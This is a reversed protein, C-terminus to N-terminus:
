ASINAVAASSHIIESLDVDPVKVMILAAMEQGVRRKKEDESAILADLHFGKIDQRNKALSVQWLEDIALLRTCEKVISAHYNPREPYRPDYQSLQGLITDFFLM